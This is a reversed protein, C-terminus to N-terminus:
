VAAGVVLDEIVAEDEVSAVPELVACTKPLLVREMWVVAVLVHELTVFKVQLDLVSPDEMQQHLIRAHEQREEPVVPNAVHAGHVGLVM